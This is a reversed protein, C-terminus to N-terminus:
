RPTISFPADSPPEPHSGGLGHSRGVSSDVAPQQHHRRGCNHADRIEAVRNAVFVHFRRDDNRIYQLVITSDTWLHSSELDIDVEKQILLLLHKKSGFIILGWVNLEWLYSTSICYWDRKEERSGFWEVKDCFEYYIFTIYDRFSCEGITFLVYTTCRM